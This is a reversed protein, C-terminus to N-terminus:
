EVDETGPTAISADDFQEDHVARSTRDCIRRAHRPASLITAPIHVRYGIGSDFVTFDARDPHHNEM